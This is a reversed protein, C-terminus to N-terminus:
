NTLKTKIEIKDIISKKLMEAIIFYMEFKAEKQIASFGYTKIGFLDEIKEPEFASSNLDQFNAIIYFDPKKVIQKLRSYLRKTRGLNSAGSNTVICIIDISNLLHGYYKSNDVLENLEIERLTFQKVNKLGTIKLRKEIREDLDNDLELITEGPFLNMITTKGVGDEGVILIKPPIFINDGVFEDFQEFISTNGNWDKLFQKYRKIFESKMFELKVRGEEELDEIDIVIVFMYGFETDYSYIFNFNRFNINRIEGGKLEKAFNSIATLFGGILDEEIVNKGTLCKYYCLLGGPALIFIKSIMKM